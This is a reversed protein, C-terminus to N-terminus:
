SPSGSGPEVAYAIGLTRLGDIIPILIPHRSAHIQFVTDPRVSSFICAFIARNIRTHHGQRPETFVPLIDVPIDFPLPGVDRSRNTVLVIRAADGRSCDRVVQERAALYIASQHPGIPLPCIILHRIDRPRAAAAMAAVM